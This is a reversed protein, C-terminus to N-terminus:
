KDRLEVMGSESKLRVRPQDADRTFIKRVVAYGGWRSRGWDDDFMEESDFPYPATIRGRGDRVEFEFSGIVPNGGYNLLADGSASSLTLDHTLSHALSVEIDGSATSFSSRREVQLSRADIEGSANSVDFRGAAKDIRVHGSANDLEFEGGVEELTIRGSANTINFEGSSQAIVIRGSANDIEFEGKSDEIIMDGSASSLEFSGSLGTIALDGSAASSQVDLKAPVTLRWTSHGSCNRGHFDEELRLEDGRREMVPEFCDYAYNYTLDVTVTRGQGAELVVDGSVMHLDLVQIGKFTKSIKEGAWAPGAATLLLIAVASTRGPNNM